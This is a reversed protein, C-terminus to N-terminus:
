DFRTPAIIIPLKCLKHRTMVTLGVVVIRVLLECKFRLLMCCFRHSPIKDYVSHMFAPTISYMSFLTATGTRGRVSVIAQFEYGTSFTFIIM